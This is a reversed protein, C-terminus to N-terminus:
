PFQDDIKIFGILNHVLHCKDCESDDQQRDELIVDIAVIHILEEGKLVVHDVWNVLEDEDRAEKDEDAVLLLLLNLVPLCVLFHEALLTDGLPNQGQM